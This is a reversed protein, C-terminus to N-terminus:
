RCKPSSSSVQAVDTMSFIVYNPGEGFIMEHFSFKSYVRSFSILINFIIKYIYIIRPFSSYQRRM